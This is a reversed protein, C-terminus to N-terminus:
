AVGAFFDCCHCLKSFVCVALHMSQPVGVHWLGFWPPPPQGSPLRMGVQFWSTCSPSHFRANSRKSSVFLKGSNVPVVHGAGHSSAHTRPMLSDGTAILDVSNAIMSYPKVLPQIVGCGGCARVFLRTTMMPEPGAPRAAACCSLRAPWTTCTRSRASRPPPRSIYPMGEMFSAFVSFTCRRKFSSSPSPIENLYLMSTPRSTVSAARHACFSATIQAVPAVCHRSMRPVSPLCRRFMTCAMSKRVAVCFAVSSASVPMPGAFDEWGYSSCPRLTTTM